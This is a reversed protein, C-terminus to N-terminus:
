TWDLISLEIINNTWNLFIGYWSNSNKELSTDKRLIQFWICVCKSFLFNRLCDTTIKSLFPQETLCIKQVINTGKNIALTRSFVCEFYNMSLIPRKLSFECECSFNVLRSKWIKWVSIKWFGWKQRLVSFDVFNILM